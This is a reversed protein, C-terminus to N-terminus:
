LHVHQIMVAKMNQCINALLLFLMPLELREERETKDKNRRDRELRSDQAM